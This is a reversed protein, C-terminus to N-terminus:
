LCSRINTDLYHLENMLYARALSREHFIDVLVVRVYVGRALVYRWFSIPFRIALAFWQITSLMFCCCMNRESIRIM